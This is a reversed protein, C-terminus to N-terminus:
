RFDDKHVFNGFGANPFKVFLNHAMLVFVKEYLMSPCSSSKRDRRESRKWSGRMGATDLGSNNSGPVIPDEEDAAEM